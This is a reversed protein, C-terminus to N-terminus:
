LVLPWANLILLGAVLWLFFRGIFKETDEKSMNLFGFYPLLMIRAIRAGDFVAIPLFNVLAIAFSLLILWTLFGSYTKLLSSLLNYELPPETGPVFKWETTLGITNHQNKELTRKVIEGTETELVLSVNGDGSSIARSLSHFSDLNVGNYEKLLWGEEVQGMAPSKFTDGCIEYDDLVTTVVVSEIKANMQIGEVYPGFAPAVALLLLNSIIIFIPISYLNAMPGIAFIRLQQRESKLKIEEEDPEVFAGIPLVGALLLGVSKLRANARRILAGHSFEHVVLIVLFVLWVYMPPAIPVNPIQLGPIVPAVGPCPKKGAGFKAFIDVAQFVLVAIALLMLGGLAFSLSFLTLWVLNEPGSLFFGTPIFFLSFLIAGAFLDLLIRKITSLNRGWLYDVAIAGFGIVLGLDALIDWLRFRSIVEIFGIFKKTKVMSGLYFTEASTFLKLAFTSFLLFGFVAYATLIFSFDIGPFTQTALLLIVGILLTAVLVTKLRDM